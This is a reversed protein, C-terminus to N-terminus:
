STASATVCVVWLWCLLRIHKGVARNWGATGAIQRLCIQAKSRATVPFQTVLKHNINFAARMLDYQVRHQIARHSSFVSNPSTCTLLRPSVDPAHSSPRVFCRCAVAQIVPRDKPWFNFVQGGSYSTCTRQTCLLLLLLLACM